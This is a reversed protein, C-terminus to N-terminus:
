RLAELSAEVRRRITPDLGEVDLVRRYERRAQASRGTAAYAWGLLHRFTADASEPVDSGAPTRRLASHLLLGRELHAVADAPRDCEVLSHGYALELAPRWTKDGGDSPRSLLTPALEVVDDWRGKRYARLVDSVDDPASILRRRAAARRMLVVWVVGVVLAVILGVLVDV